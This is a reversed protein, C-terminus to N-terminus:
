LILDVLQQDLGGAIILPGHRVLFQEFKGIGSMAWIANFNYIMENQLKFRGCKFVSANQLGQVEDLEQELITVEINQSLDM